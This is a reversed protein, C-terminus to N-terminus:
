AISCARAQTRPSIVMVRAREAPPWAMAAALARLPGARWAAKAAPWPTGHTHREPREAGGGAPGPDEGPTRHRAM